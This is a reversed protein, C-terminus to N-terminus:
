LKREMHELTITGFTLRGATDLKIAEAVYKAGEAGFFNGALYIEQLKNVKIAEAVAIAGEAGILIHSLNIDM